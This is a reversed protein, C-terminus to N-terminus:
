GRPAVPARGDPCCDLPCIDHSPGLPGLSRRVPRDVMREQILERLMAVYAPATGVTGARVLTIGLRQAKHRAEIDLDYLVEMHDSLFGIPVVVV